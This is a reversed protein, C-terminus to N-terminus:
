IEKAASLAAEHNQLDYFVRFAVDRLKAGEADDTTRLEVVGAVDRETIGWVECVLALMDLREEATRRRDVYGMCADHYVRGDRNGYSFRADRKWRFRHGCHECRDRRWRQVRDVLAWGM